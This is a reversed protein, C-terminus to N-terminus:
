AFRLQALERKMTRMNQEVKGLLERTRAGGRGQAKSASSSPSRRGAAGFLHGDVGAGQLSSKGPSRGQAPEFGQASIEQLRRLLDATKVTKQLQLEAAEARGNPSGSASPGAERNPVRAVAFPRAFQGEARPSESFKSHKLSPQGTALQRAMRKQMSDEVLVLADQSDGRKVSVPKGSSFVSSTLKSSPEWLQSRLFNKSASANLQAYKQGPQLQESASFRSQGFQTQVGSKASYIPSKLKLSRLAFKVKPAQGQELASGRFQKASARTHLGESDERPSFLAPHSKRPSNPELTAVRYDKRKQPADEGAAELDSQGPAKSATYDASADRLAEPRNDGIFSSIIYSKRPDNKAPERLLSQNESTEFGPKDLEESPSQNRYRTLEQQLKLNQDMLHLLQPKPAITLKKLKDNETQLEKVKYILESIGGGFRKIHLIDKLFRVEDKLSSLEEAPPKTELVSKLVIRSANKTFKLTAM